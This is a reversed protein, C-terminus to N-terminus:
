VPLLEGNLRTDMVADSGLGSPTEVAVKDLTSLADATAVEAKADAGLWTEPVV